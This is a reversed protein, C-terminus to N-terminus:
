YKRDQMGCLGALAQGNESKVADLFVAAIQDTVEELDRPANIPHSGNLRPAFRRIYFNEIYELWEYPVEGLSWYRDFKKKRWHDALRSSVYMAKGVYVIEDSDILFYVGHEDPVEHDNGGYRQYRRAERVIKEEMHLLVEPHDRFWTILDSNM